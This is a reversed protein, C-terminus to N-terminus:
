AFLAFLSLITKECLRQFSPSLKVVFFAFIAECLSRLSHESEVKIKLKKSLKECLRQSRLSFGKYRIIETYEADRRSFDREREKISFFRERKQNFIDRQTSQTEAHVVRERERQL